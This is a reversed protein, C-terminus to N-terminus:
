SAAPATFVEAVSSGSAVDWVAIRGTWSGALVLAGQAGFRASYGWDALDGYSALEKGNVDWRKAFRDAGTTVLENAPNFDVSLVGGGHANFSRIQTYAWTDWLRVTGDQGASALITSDASYSIGHIAGTHGRLAEVARGNAAQWLLLGGARDATALLEGDPSFKVSYIWDTHDELKYLLSGDQVSYVKVKKSPGGLAIMRHDPSIDAAMIADYEEGYQGLREAKRVNWVVVLGSNGEQGGGALLLEGNVSFTMTYVEGEPFPLAGLLAYTSLDYLLIQRYGAVAALPARPSTAVSRAVVAKALEPAPPQLAVEPMPPPGDVIEAAVFVASEEKKEEQKMAVKANGDVPAGLQIWESLLALQEATLPDGSPPMKPEETGNVLRLLRSDALAGAAIVAGSSGGEMLTGYTDLALGSRRTDQNHCKVCREKFIPLIHDQFTVKPATAEEPKMEMAPAAPAAAPAAAAMTTPAEPEGFAAALAKAQAKIQELQAAIAATQQDLADAQQKLAAAETTLADAKTKYEDLKAKVLAPDLAILQGIAADVAEPAPPDAQTGLAFSGLALAVVLWAQPRASRSIYARVDKM